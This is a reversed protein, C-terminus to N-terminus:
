FPLGQEDFDPEAHTPAHQKAAGGSLVQMEMMSLDHFYKGQWERSKAQYRVAVKAGKTVNPFKEPKTTQVAVLDQYGRDNPETQVVVTLLPKPNQGKTEGLDTHVVNGIVIAATNM